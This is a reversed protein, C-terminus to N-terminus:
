STLHPPPWEPARDGNTVGGDPTLAGLLLHSSTALQFLWPRTTAGWTLGAPPTAQRGLHPQHQFQQHCQGAEAPLACLQPGAPRDDGPLQWVVGPPCLLSCAPESAVQASLM